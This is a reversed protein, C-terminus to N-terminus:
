KINRLITQKWARGTDLYNSAEAYKGNNIKSFFDGTFPNKYRDNSLIKVYDQAFDYLDSYNKYKTSKPAQGSEIFSQSDGHFRKVNGLNYSGWLTKGWGTEGGLQAIMDVINDTPKGQEALAKELIPKMTSYFGRVGVPLNTVNLPKPKAIPVASVIPSKAVYTADSSQTQDVPPINMEALPPVTRRTPPIYPTFAVLEPLEAGLQAKIVMGNKGKQTWSKWTRVAASDPGIHFQAGTSGYKNQEDRSVESLVGYGKNAFFTRVEQNNLLESKLDDFSKNNTPVIDWAQGKAHNSLHGSKTVAGPRYGSTIKADIKNNKLLEEISTAQPKVPKNEILDTFTPKTDIIVKHQLEPISFISFPDSNYETPQVVSNFSAFDQDDLIEGVQRIHIKDNSITPRSSKIFKRRMDRRGNLMASNRVLSDTTFVLKNYAM